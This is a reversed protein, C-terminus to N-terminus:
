DSGRHLLALLPAEGWRAMAYNVLLAVIRVNGEIYGEDNDIRDISPQFPRSPGVVNPELHVGTVACRYDQAELLALVEATRPIADVDTGHKRAKNTRRINHALRYAEQEWLTNARGRM